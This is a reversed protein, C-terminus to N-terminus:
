AAETSAAMAALAQAETLAYRREGSVWYIYLKAIRYTGDAMRMLEWCTGVYRKGSVVRVLGAVGRLSSPSALGAEM